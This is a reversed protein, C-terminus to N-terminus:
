ERVEIIEGFPAKPRSNGTVAWLVPYEPCDGFDDCYLDTLFILCAPPCDQSDVYKIVPSFATGGGGIPSIKLEEDQDVFETKCIVSDFYVIETSSPRMDQRITNIEAAFNKLLKADVSGSCDVAIIVKGMREGMLSPLYIDEALFRRKPRAFSFDIKARESLYKRLADRWDVKSQVIGDILRELGGSLKGQMKAANKAAIVKVKLQASKEAITAADTKSQGNNTGSDHVQDLAGGDDGPKKSEDSEPLLKYVGEATNNGQKVLSPNYLGGKPMAGIRDNVLLENIVYDAAQNWRNPGRNGRRGMHDFVCHLTEHALVFTLESMTLSDVFDPNYLITEGDTAMTPIDSKEIMPMSLLISAFFPQDIILGARAKALKNM